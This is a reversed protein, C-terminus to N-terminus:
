CELSLHEYGYSTGLTPGFIRFNWLTVNIKLRNIDIFLVGEFDLDAFLETIVPVAAVHNLQLFSLAILM